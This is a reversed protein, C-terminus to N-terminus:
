RGVGFLAAGIMGANNGLQAKLIPPLGGDDTSFIESEVIKDLPGFLPEGANCVGGGLIVVQPRVANCLSAIGTGLYKVYDAVIAKAAPDGQKAADFIIKGNVRSTDGGCLEHLLSDPYKAMFRKAERLLATVSAYAELCGHSGCGCKEGGTVIIIHGLETGLGCGTFLKKEFVLGGGVGTGLTLVIAYDYGRAAGAYVEALAAADADNGLFVPIDWHKQFIPIVDIKRWGPLNPALLVINTKSNVAGPIGIGVYVIDEESIGAMKVATKGAVVMDAVVEEVLRNANTPVVNKAVIKYEEDIVGAKIDTGGLDIGLYYKGM